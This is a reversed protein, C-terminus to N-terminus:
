QVGIMVRVVCGCLWLFALRGSTVSAVDWCAEKEIRVRVAVIPGAPVPEDGFRRVDAKSFPREWAFGNGGVMWTRRGYKEGLTVEPLRAVMDEVDSIRVM